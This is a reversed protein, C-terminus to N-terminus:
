SKTGVFMFVYVLKKICDECQPWTIRVPSFASLYVFDTPIYLIKVHVSQQVKASIFNQPMGFVIVKWSLCVFHQVEFKILHIM